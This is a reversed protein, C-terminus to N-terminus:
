ASCPLWLMWPALVLAAVLPPMCDAGASGNLEAAVASQDLLFLLLASYYDDDIYSSQCLKSERGNRPNESEVGM